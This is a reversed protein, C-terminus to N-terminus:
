GEPTKWYRALGDDDCCSIYLADHDSNLAVHFMFGEAFDGLPGDLLAASLWNQIKSSTMRHYEERLTMSAISLRGNDSKIIATCQADQLLLKWLMRGYQTRLESDNIATIEDGIDIGSTVIVRGNPENDVPTSTVQAHSAIKGLCFRLVSYPVAHYNCKDISQQGSFWSELPERSVRNVSTLIETEDFKFTHGPGM